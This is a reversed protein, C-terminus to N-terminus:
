KVLELGLYWELFKIQEECSYCTKVCFGEARLHEIFELQERSHKGGASKNEMYAGAYGRRRFPIMVDPVGRRRGLANARARAAEDMNAGDSSAYVFKLFPYRRRNAELDIISFFTAQHEFEEQRYKKKPKIAAERYEKLSMRDNM